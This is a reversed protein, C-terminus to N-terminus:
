YDFYMKDPHYNKLPNRKWIMKEILKELHMLEELKEDTTTYLTANNWEM